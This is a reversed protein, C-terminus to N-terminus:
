TGPLDPLRPCLTMVDKLLEHLAENTAEVSVLPSGSGDIELGVVDRTNNASKNYKITFTYTEIVKDRDTSDAHVYVQLARLDGAKLAVFAGKEQVVNSIM